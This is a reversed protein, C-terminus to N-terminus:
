NIKLVRDINCYDKYFFYDKIKYNFLSEEVKERQGDGIEIYVKSKPISNSYLEFIKNYFTMGNEGDTLASVPEFNKVENDLNKIDDFPIYPPNSIIYDFHETHKYDKLFDMCRFEINNDRVNNINSNEKAIKLANESNDVAIIKHKIEKKNLELSLAIAICGSGTGIELINIFDKEEKYIDELVKGVLIETEQRPILVNSDLNISYGYFNTSGIIYQLPEYDLRRRLMAKFRIIEDQKLPKDFELYLKLRDCKLIECFMLEINLRPNKIGKESLLGSSYNLIELLTTLKNKTM